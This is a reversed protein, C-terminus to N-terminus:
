LLKGTADAYGVKEALRACLNRAIKETVEAQQSESTVSFVDTVSIDDNKIGWHYEVTVLIGIVMKSM